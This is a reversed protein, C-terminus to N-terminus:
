WTILKSLCGYDSPGFFGKYVNRIPIWIKDNKLYYLKYTTLFPNYPMEYKSWLVDVVGEGRIKVHKILPKENDFPSGNLDVLQTCLRTTLNTLNDSSTFDPGYFFKAAMVADYPAVAVALRAQARKIFKFPMPNGLVAPPPSGFVSRPVIDIKPKIFENIVDSSLMYEVRIGMASPSRQLRDSCARYERLLAMQPIGVSYFVGFMLAMFSLLGWMTVFRAYPKNRNERKGNGIIFAHALCSITLVCLLYLIYSLTKKVKFFKIPMAHIPLTDFIPVGEVSQRLWSHSCGYNTTILISIKQCALIAEIWTSLSLYCAEEYHSDIVRYRSSVSSALSRCYCCEWSIQERYDQYERHLRSELTLYGTIASVVFFVM